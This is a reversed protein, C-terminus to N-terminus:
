VPALGTMHPWNPRRALKVETALKGRMQNNEAIKSAKSPAWATCSTDIKVAATHVFASVKQELCIGSQIFFISFPGALWCFQFPIKCTCPNERHITEM